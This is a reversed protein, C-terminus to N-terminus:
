KKRRVLGGVLGGVLLLATAPEPVEASNKSTWFSIHSVDPRKGGNNLLGVTSYTGFYNNVEYLAFGTGAKVTIYNIITGDNVKWEGENSMEIDYVNFSFLEPDDDSKGYLHLDHKEGTASFLSSEVVSEFDNGSKPVVVGDLLVDGANSICALGSASNCLVPVGISSVFYLFLILSVVKKM